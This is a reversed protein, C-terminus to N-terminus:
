KSILEDNKQPKGARDLTLVVNYADRGNYIALYLHSPQGHADTLVFPREMRMAKFSGGTALPIEKPMLKFQAAKEWKIGDASTIMAMVSQGHVHVVAYFRRLAADYWICADETNYEGFAPIPQVQWPGEPQDAVATAQVVTWGKAANPKDGKIIMHYRGDPGQCVAPNNAIRCIAEAPEVVPKDFRQWPGDLTDAIALGVRQTNRLPLWTPSKAGGKATAILGVADLTPHNMSVYYLYFKGNFKCLRPNQATFQDWHGAGRGTLVTKVFRFPGEPTDAVYHAIEAHTLWCNFGYKRPWREAFMHYKGGDAIVSGGWIYWDPDAVINASIGKADALNARAGPYAGVVLRLTDPPSSPQEAVTVAAPSAVAM